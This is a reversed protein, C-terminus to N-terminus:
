SRPGSCASSRSVTRSNMVVSTAGTMSSCSRSRRKGVSITRRMPSSPQSPIGIGSSSPPAPSSVSAYAIAISSIPRTHPDSPSMTAAWVLRPQPGSWRAPEGSCFCRQSTGIARPSTMPAYPRVSGPAPLSEPPVRVVARNSSPASPPEHTSSPAFRKM